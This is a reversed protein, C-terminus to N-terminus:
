LPEADDWRTDHIAAAALDRADVWPAQPPRRSPHLRLSRLSRVLKEVVEGPNDVSSAWYRPIVFGYCRAYAPHTHIFHHHHECIAAVNWLEDVKTVGVRHHAHLPGGCAIHSAFGLAAAQCEGDRRMVEDRFEPSMAGRRPPTRRMPTRRLPTSRSLASRKLAVM